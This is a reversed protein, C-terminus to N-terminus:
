YVALQHVSHIIKKFDIFLFTQEQQEEFIFLPFPAMKQRSRRLYTVRVDQEFYFSPNSGIRNMFIHTNLLVFLKTATVIQNM